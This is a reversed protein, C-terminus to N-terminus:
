YAILLCRYAVILLSSYTWMYVFPLSVVILCSLLCSAYLRETMWACVSIVCTWFLGTGELVKWAKGYATCGKSLRGDMLM